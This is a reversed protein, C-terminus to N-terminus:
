HHAQYQSVHLLNHSFWNQPHSNRQGSHLHPYCLSQYITIIRTHLRLIDSSRQIGGTRIMNLDDHLYIGLCINQMQRLDFIPIQLTEETPNESVGEKGNWISKIAGLFRAPIGKSKTPDEKKTHPCIM